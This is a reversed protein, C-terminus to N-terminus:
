NLLLISNGLTPRNAQGVVAVPTSQPQDCMMHTGTPVALIQAAYDRQVPQLIQTSRCIVNGFCVSFAVINYPEPLSCCRCALLLKLRIVLNSPPKSLGWLLLSLALLQSSVIYCFCYCFLLSIATRFSFIVCLM